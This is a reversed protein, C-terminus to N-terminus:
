YGRGRDVGHLPAEGRLVRRISEAVDAAAAEPVPESALHPTVLVNEMGWFPHGAPLPETEFVDLTAEAVAGSRLAALLADERVVAGRSANVLKAGPPLLSLARADLLGRTAPTLPLLVVLIEAGRLVAELAGEWTVGPIAKPRQSWGTVRFGLQALAAAAPGGLEGLGLVGVTVEDLPRPVRYEWAGRRQARELLHIERAYRTVAFVVYSTMLRVMGPDGLRAIPVEPLDDRALLGDVGAGLNVILRLGTLPRFFGPPPNWVLAAVIDAPDGLAPSERFAMGPLLGALAARWAEREAPRGHFALAAM